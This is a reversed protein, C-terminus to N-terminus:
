EDIKKSARIKGRLMQAEQAVKAIQMKSWSPLRRFRIEEANRISGRRTEKFLTWYFVAGPQVLDKDQDVVWELSIEAQHAPLAGGRDTLKVVMAGDDVSLVVGEWVQIVAAYAEGALTRVSKSTRGPEGEAKLVEVNTHSSQDGVLFLSAEAIKNARSVNREAVESGLADFANTGTVNRISWDNLSSAHM